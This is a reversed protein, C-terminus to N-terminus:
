GKKAKGGKKPQTIKQGQEEDEVSRDAKEIEAKEADTLELHKAETPPTGGGDCGCPFALALAAIWTKRM